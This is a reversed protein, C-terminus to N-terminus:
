CSLQLLLLCTCVYVKSRFFTACGDVRRREESSMTRARSKPYHVGEYGHQALNPLFFSEFQEIDVEQLCVVDADCNYIEQLVLDKRYEWALAWSPTYGYIQATAYKECLVNYCMVTFTPPTPKQAPPDPEVPVWEREGPPVSVPCSDRLYEILGNTGGHDVRARLADQLPNGEIGLTKLNFLMGLEGPLEELLNDFMLLDTLSWCLGLEPPVSTLKNSSVDLVTLHKLKAIATPLQSLSNHGIYLNTLFDYRFLTTSLARLNMGGMDIATWCTEKEGSSASGDAEQNSALTGSRNPRSATLGSIGTRGSAVSSSRFGGYDDPGASDPRTIM